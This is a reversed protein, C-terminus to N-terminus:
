FIRNTHDEMLYKHLAYKLSHNSVKAESESLQSSCEKIQEQLDEVRQPLSQLQVLERTTVTLKKQGEKWKNTSSALNENLLQKENQLMSSETQLRSVEM